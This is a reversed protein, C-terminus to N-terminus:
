LVLSQSKNETNQENQTKIVVKPRDNGIKKDMEILIKMREEYSMGGYSYDSRDLVYYWDAEDRKIKDLDMELLAKVIIKRLNKFSLVIMTAKKLGQWKSVMVTERSIIIDFVRGIEKKVNKKLEEKNLEPLIDQFRARYAYDMELIMCFIDRLKQIRPLMDKDKINQLLVESVRHVEKITVCYKETPLAFVYKYEVWYAISLFYDLLEIVIRKKMRRPLVLYFLFMVGFIIRVSKNLFLPFSGAIIRKSAYIYDLIRVDPYGKFIYNCGVYKTFIGGSEPTNVNEVIGICNDGYGFAGIVIQVNRLKEKVIEEGKNMNSNKTLKLNLPINLIMM